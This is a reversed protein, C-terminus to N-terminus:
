DGVQVGARVEQVLKPIQAEPVLRVQYENFLGCIRKASGNLSPSFRAVVIMRKDRAHRQLLHGELVLREARNLAAQQTETFREPRILNLTGNRWAYPVTIRRGLVPLDVPENLLVRRRLEPSRLARDLEPLLPERQRYQRGGVLSNFLRELDAEPDCVKMPRPDTILIENARTAVFRQLDEISQFRDKESELRSVIAQKTANIRSRDFEQGNFFRRIRDNGAAVKARFFGSEPCFVLVGINAAELRAHDPCFQILSYYARTPKM